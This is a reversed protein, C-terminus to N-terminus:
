IILQNITIVTNNYDILKYDQQFNHPSNRARSLRPNKTDSSISIDPCYSIDSKEFIPDMNSYQEANFTRCILSRPSYGSVTRMNLHPSTVLGKKFRLSVLFM